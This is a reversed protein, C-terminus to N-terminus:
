VLESKMSMQAELLPQNLRLPKLARGFCIASRVVATFLRFTESLQATLLRVLTLLKAVFTFLLISSTAFTLELSLQVLNNSVVIQIM